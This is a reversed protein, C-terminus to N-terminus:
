KREYDIVRAKIFYEKTEINIQAGNSLIDNEMRMIAYGHALVNRPDLSKAIKGLAAIKAKQLDIYNLM